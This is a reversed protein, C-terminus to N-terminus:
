WQLTKSAIAHMKFGGEGSLLFIAMVTERSAVTYIKFGGERCAMAMDVERGTTSYM